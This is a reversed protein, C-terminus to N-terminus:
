PWPPTVAGMKCVLFSLHALPLSDAWPCVAVTCCLLPLPKPGLPEQQLSLQVISGQEWKSVAQQTSASLQLTWQVRGVESFPGREGAVHSM